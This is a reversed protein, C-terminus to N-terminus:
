PSEEGGRWEVVVPEAGILTGRAGVVLVRGVADTLRAIAAHLSPPLARAAGDATWVVSFDGERRFRYEVFGSDQLAGAASVPEAGTLKSVLGRFVRVARTERLDDRTSTPVYLSAAPAHPVHFRLQWYLIDSVGKGGLTAIMAGLSAAQDAESYRSMDAVNIDRGDWSKGRKAPILYGLESAVIPRPLTATRSVIWDVVAPLTQPGYYHHLQYVDRWKGLDGTVRTTFEIRRRSDASALMALLRPMTRPGDGPTSYDMAQWFDLAHGPHGSLVLEAMVALAVSWSSPGHDAVVLQPDVAKISAHATRLLAGYEAATVRRFPRYYPRNYGIDHDVENSIMYYRVRKGYRRAVQGVWESYAALAKASQAGGASIQDYVEPTELLRLAVQIGRRDHEALVRDMRLLGDPGDVDQWVDVINWTAGLAGYRDLNGLAVELKTAEDASYPVAPDVAEKFLFSWFQTRTGFSLGAHSPIAVCFIVAAVVLALGNPLPRRYPAFRM